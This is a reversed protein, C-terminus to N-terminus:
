AGCAALVQMEFDCVYVTYRNNRLYLWCDRNITHQTSQKTILIHTHTRSLWMSFHMYFCVNSGYYVVHMLCVVDSKRHSTKVAFRFNLLLFFVSILFLFSFCLSSFSIFYLVIISILSCCFFTHIFRLPFNSQICRHIVKAYPDM